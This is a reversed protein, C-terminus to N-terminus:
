GIMPKSLLLHSLDNVVCILIMEPYNSLKSVLHDGAMQQDWSPQETSRLNRFWWHELCMERDPGFIRCPSGVTTVCKRNFRTRCSAYSNDPISRGSRCGAVQELGLLNPYLIAPYIIQVASKVKVFECQHLIWM